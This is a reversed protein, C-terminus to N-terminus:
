VDPKGLSQYGAVSSIIQAPPLPVQLRWDNGDWRLTRLSQGYGGAATSESTQGAISILVLDGTPDGSM